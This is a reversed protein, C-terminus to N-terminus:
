EKKACECHWHEQGPLQKAATFIVDIKQEVYRTWEATLPEYPASMEARLRIAPILNMVDAERLRRHWWRNWWYCAM